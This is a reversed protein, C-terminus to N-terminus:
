FFSSEKVEYAIKQAVPAQPNVYIQHLKVRVYLSHYYKLLFDDRMNWYRLQAFNSLAFDIFIFKQVKANFVSISKRPRGHKLRNLTSRSFNERSGSLVRQKIRQSCKNLNLPCFVIGKATKNKKRSFCLVRLIFISMLHRPKRLSWKRFSRNRLSWNQLTMISTVKQLECFDSLQSIKEVLPRRM